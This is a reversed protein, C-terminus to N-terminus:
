QRKYVINHVSGSALTLKKTLDLSYGWISQNFQFDRFLWLCQPPGQNSVTMVMRQANTIQQRDANATSRLIEKIM